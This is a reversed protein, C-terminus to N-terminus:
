QKQSWKLIEEATLIFKESKENIEDEKPVDPYRSYIYAFTLEKLKVLYNNPMGVNKGLKVLDHIKLLKGSKKILVGKLSKEISQHSYFASEEYKKGEFLFKATDLDRKAREVWKKFEEMTNIKSGM